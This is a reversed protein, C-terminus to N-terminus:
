DRDRHCGRGSDSDRDRSNTTTTTTAENPFLCHRPLQLVIGGKKNDDEHTQADTDKSRSSKTNSGQFFDHMFILMGKKSEFLLIIKGERWFLFGLAFPLKKNSRKLMIQVCKFRTM